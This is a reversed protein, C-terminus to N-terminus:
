EGQGHPSAGGAFGSQPPSPIDERVKSVHKTVFVMGVVSLILCGINLMVALGFIESEIKDAPTGTLLYYVAIALGIIFPVIFQFVIGICATLLAWLPGNRETGVATKYVQYTFVIIAVIGLILLM